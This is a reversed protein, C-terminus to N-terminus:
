YYLTDVTVYQMNSPNKQDSKGKVALSSCRFVQSSVHEEMRVHVLYIFGVDWMEEGISRSDEVDGGAGAGGGGISANRERTMAPRDDRACLM